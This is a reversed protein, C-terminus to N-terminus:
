DGLKELKKLDKRRIFYILIAILPIVINFIIYYYDERYNRHGSFLFEIKPNVYSIYFVAIALLIGIVYIFPNINKKNSVEKFARASIYLYSVVRTMVIILWIILFGAEIREFISYTRVLRVYTLFPFNSHRAQEIGLSVQTAIIMLIIVIQSLIKSKVVIKFADKKNKLNPFGMSLINPDTFILSAELAGINISSLSSDAYIPLLVTMDINNFGLAIILILSTIILPGFFEVTRVSVELGKTVVYISVIVLSIIIILPHLEDMFVTQIMQIEVYYYIIAIRVFYIGYLIGIIKGLFKGFIREMYQVITLNSFRMALFLIPLNLLLCYIISLIMMIWIDQNAPGLHIIPMITIVTGIRNLLLVYMMQRSSIQENM